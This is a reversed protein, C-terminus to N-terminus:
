SRAWCGVAPSPAREGSSRRASWRIRTCSHRVLVYAFLLDLAVLVYNYTIMRQFWLGDASGQGFLLSVGVGVQAVVLLAWLALPVWLRRLDKKVIHWILKM